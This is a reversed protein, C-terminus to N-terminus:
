DSLDVPAGSTEAGISLVKFSKLVLSKCALLQGLSMTVVPSVIANPKEKYLCRNIIQVLYKLMKTITKQTM